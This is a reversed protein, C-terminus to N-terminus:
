LFKQIKAQLDEKAQAGVSQDVINGGKFILLSPISMINFKQAMKPSDDVNLKGIKVKSEDMENALEEVVPGMQRCPGCWPAWFDVVVPIASQLVESEFNADTFTHEMTRFPYAIPARIALRVNSMIEVWLWSPGLLTGKFPSLRMDVVVSGGPPLGDSGFSRANSTTGSRGLMAGRLAM